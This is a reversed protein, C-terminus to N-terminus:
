IFANDLMGLPDFFGLPPQVGLESDFANLSSSTQVTKTPAFAAASAALLATVTLKMM